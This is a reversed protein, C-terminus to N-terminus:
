SPHLLSLFLLLLLHPHLRQHALSSFCFLQETSASHQIDFTQLTVCIKEQIIVSMEKCIDSNSMEDDSELEQSTSYQIDKKECLAKRCLVLLPLDDGNEDKDRRGKRKGRSLEREREHM